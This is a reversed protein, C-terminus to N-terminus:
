WAQFARDKTSPWCVLVHMYKILIIILACTRVIACLGM